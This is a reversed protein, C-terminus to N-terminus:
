ELKEVKKTAKSILLKYSVGILIILYILIGLIGIVNSILNGAVFIVLGLIGIVIGIGMVKLSNLNNKVAQQENEWYLKPSYSDVIVGIISILTIIVEGMLLSLLIVYVDVKFVVLALSCILNTVSSLLIGVIVKAFLKVRIDTPLYKIILLERGERSISTAAISNASVSFALFAMYIGVIIIKNDLSNIFNAVQYIGESGTSLMPIVFIIIPLILTSICNVVYSPTRFLIKIERMIWAKLASNQKILSKQEENTLKKKTSSSESLGVVGKIYVKEALVYLVIMVLSVILILLGLNIFGKSTGSESLAYASVKTNIFVTNMKDLLSGQGFIEQIDQANDITMAGNGIRQGLFNIGLGLFLGILGTVVKFADKYKSLNTFRMLIFSLIVGYAIPVIPITIYVILATIYYVIGSGSLVGYAILAPIIVSLIIYEYVLLTLFKGIVIHSAKIPLPLIWEIDNNFYFISMVGAIGFLFIITSAGNFLTGLILESQNFHDLVGYSVTVFLTIPVALMILIFGMAVITLVKQGGSKVNSTLSEYFNRLFFKTITVLKNM